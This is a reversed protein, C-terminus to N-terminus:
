GSHEKSGPKTAMKLTKELFGLFSRKRKPVAIPECANSCLPCLLLLKGGARKLKHVCDDCMLQKCHTCRFTARLDQHNPCSSSGDPLIVPRPEQPADFQPIAINVKASELVMEVEGVHLSQGEQLAQESIQEADIYTGNTSGCDRVVIDGDGLVIECHHTSVTPHDLQLDNKASRGLRNVGAKLEYSRVPVEDCRINLRPM